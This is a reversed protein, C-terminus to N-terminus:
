QKEEMRSLWEEIEARESATLRADGFRVRNYARTLQMAEPLGTASAFELPTEGPARKLGRAGLALTMREYFEVVSGRAEEERVRSFFRWLGLRRIRRVLLVLGVVALVAVLAALALRTYSVSGDENEIKLWGFWDAFSEKLSNLREGTWNRLDYFRNGVTNALSRQEQSDYGVVYQIWLMELAEAYKGFWGQIGTRQFAPRGAQPTPDFTVWASTGPFYVEVWSHAERQTVTYVGAADNYEGRQFGNVVRAPIGQTRLMVAMATSFYECHGARVNFLFDALPDPGTAKMDLTYGFDKQLRSEIARAADYQNAAGAATIWEHALRPIRPDVTNPLQLYRAVWAPYFQVDGVATKRLAEADPEKTDSYVKYSLREQYHPRTSLAGESDSRLYPIAGQVAVVRPAAFLVPTDLAEVYFTQTTLHQLNETTGLQFFGRENNAKEFAFRESTREWGRGNYFDLAVGRWRLRTAAAPDQAEEVRVRMVLQDSEQLRGVDGLNVSESFGVFGRAGNGTRTLASAGTRPVVLFLPLALGFILLMLLLSVLPLRRAEGNHRAAADAKRRTLRRFLTSDPAVLLRTETIKVGRRAKRIEFALVTSLAFLGYLVLSLLFLPSVSLGAALLVEFFSILYLFVWDRDAKVQLLKVVSLFLILHGLASVGVKESSTGGSLFQWDLYFLPLSLLVVFLGVREPLQWRTGELKWAVVLVVGFLAALAASLGDSVALALAGCAVMAYSSVRFFTSFRM